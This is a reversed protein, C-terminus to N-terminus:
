DRGLINITENYIYDGTYLPWIIQKYKVGWELATVHSETVLYPFASPDASVRELRASM